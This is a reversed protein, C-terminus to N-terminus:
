SSPCRWAGSPTWVWDVSIDWDEAPLSECLQCDHAMGILLPRHGNDMLRALTRDYFGVGMGLRRGQRDVGVLPMLICDPIREAGDDLRPEPIGYRNKSLQEENEYLGFRLSKDDQILPLLIDTGQQQLHQMVARCSLEGDAAWYAAINNFQSLDPLASLHLLLDNAAQRQQRATLSKRAARLIHRCDAKGTRPDIQNM